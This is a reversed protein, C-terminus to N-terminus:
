WQGFNKGRSTQLDFQVGSVMVYEGQLLDYKKNKKYEASGRYGTSKALCSYVALNNDQKIAQCVAGSGYVGIKYGTGALRDRVGEFFPIIRTKVSNASADYDVAFYIASGSPQGAQGARQLAYGADKYGICYSFADDSTHADQYFSFIKLGAKHLAEAEPRKLLKWSATNKTLYRGVFTYGANRIDNAISSCNAATDLGNQSDDPGPNTGPLVFQFLQTDDGIYPRWFLQKGVATLYLLPSSLALAIRYKLNADDVTVLELASNAQVMDNFHRVACSKKSGYSEMVFWGGGRHCVIRRYLVGNYPNNEVSWEQELDETRKYLDVPNGSEVDNGTHEGALNVYLGTAVNIMEYYTNIVLGM